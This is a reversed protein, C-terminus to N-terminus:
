IFLNLNSEQTDGLYAAVGGFEVFDFLEEREIGMIDMSMTCAIFKVGLNSAKEIMVPLPDVNKQKMVKKMMTSGAGGMNMSSIPLSDASNPLMIDFLKAM